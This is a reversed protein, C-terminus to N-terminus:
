PFIQGMAVKDVAFIAHGTIFGPVGHHYPFASIHGGEIVNFIDTNNGCSYAVATPNSNRVSITIFFVIKQSIANHLGNFTLRRKLAVYCRVNLTSSYVNGGAKVTTDQEAEEVGFM